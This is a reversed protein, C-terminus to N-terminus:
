RHQTTYHQTPPAFCYLDDRLLEEVRSVQIKTCMLTQIQVGELCTEFLCRLSGM